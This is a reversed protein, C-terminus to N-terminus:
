SQWRSECPHIVQPGYPSCLDDVVSNCESCRDGDEGARPDAAHRAADGGLGYGSSHPCVEAAAKLDGAARLKKSQRERASGESAARQLEWTEIDADQYIAEPDYNM